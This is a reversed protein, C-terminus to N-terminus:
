QRFLRDIHIPLHPRDHLMLNQPGFFALAQHRGENLLEHFRLHVTVIFLFDAFAVSWFYFSDVSHLSSM